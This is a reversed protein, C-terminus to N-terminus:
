QLLSLMKFQFAFLFFLNRTMIKELLNNVYGNSLGQILYSHVSESYSHKLMIGVAYMYCLYISIIDGVLKLFYVWQLLKFRTYIYIYINYYLIYLICIYTYM